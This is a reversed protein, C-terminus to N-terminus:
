PLKQLTARILENLKNMYVQGWTNPIETDAGSDVPDM